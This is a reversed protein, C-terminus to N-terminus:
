ALTYEIKCNTVTANNKNMFVAAQQASINSAIVTNTIASTGYYTIAYRDSNYTALQIANGIITSATLTSSIRIGCGTTSSNTITNNSIVSHQCQEIQIESSASGGFVNNCISSNVLQAVYISNYQHNNLQGSVTNNSINCNTLNGGFRMVHQTPNLIVNDTVSLSRFLTDVEACIFCNSMNDTYGRYDLLNNSVIMGVPQAAGAVYIAYGVNHFRSDQIRIGRMQNQAQNTVNATTIRIGMTCDVINCSNVYLGRDCHRIGVSFRWIWCNNFVVDTDAIGINASSAFTTTGSPQPTTYTTRAMINEFTIGSAKINFLITTVSPDDPAFVIGSSQWSLNPHNESCITIFPTNLTITGKILYEQGMGIPIFVTDGTQADAFCARFAALDNTIGDGKAGYDLVNLCNAKRIATESNILERLEAVKSNYTTIDVKSDIAAKVTNTSSYASAPIINGLNAVSTDIKADVADIADKVTDTATFESAPIIDGVEEIRGDFGDVTFQLQALQANFDSWKVWYEDDTPLTGVPPIFRSVYGDGNYQVVALADYQTTADWVVPNWLHPVIKPGVYQTTPINNINPM